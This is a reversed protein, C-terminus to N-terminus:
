VNASIVGCYSAAFKQSVKGAAIAAAPKAASTM